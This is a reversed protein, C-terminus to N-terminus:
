TGAIKTKLLLFNLVEAGRNTRHTPDHNTRSFRQREPLDEAFWCAFSAINVAHQKRTAFDDFPQAAAEALERVEKGPHEQM